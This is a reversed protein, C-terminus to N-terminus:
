ETHRASPLAAAQWYQGHLDRAVFDCAGSCARGRSAGPAYKHWGARRPDGSEDGLQCRERAAPVVVLDVGERLGEAM